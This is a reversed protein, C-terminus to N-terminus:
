HFEPLVDDGLHLDTRCVACARVRLLLKGPGPKPLPRTRLALPEGPRELVMARMTETNTM